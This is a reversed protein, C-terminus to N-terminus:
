SNAAFTAFFSAAALHHPDAPNFLAVVAGTDILAAARL